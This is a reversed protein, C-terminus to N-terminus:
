DRQKASSSKEKERNNRTPNRYKTMDIKKEETNKITKFRQQPLALYYCNLTVECKHREKTKLKGQM